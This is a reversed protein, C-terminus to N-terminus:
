PASPTDSHTLRGRGRPSIGTGVQPSPFSFAPFIGLTAPRTPAVCQPWAPLRARQRAFHAPRTPGRQRPSAPVPQPQSAGRPAPASLRGRAQPISRSPAPRPARGQDRATPEQWVTSV